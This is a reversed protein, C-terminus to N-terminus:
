PSCPRRAARRELNSRMTSQLPRIRGFTSSARNLSSCVDPSPEICLTDVELAARWGGRDVYTTPSTHGIRHWSSSLCRTLLLTPCTYNWQLYCVTHTVAKRFSTHVTRVFLVPVARQTNWIFILIYIYHKYLPRHPTAVKEASLDAMSSENNKVSRGGM